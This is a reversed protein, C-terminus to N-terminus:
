ENGGITAPPLSPGPDALRKAREDTSWLLYLVAVFIGVRVVWWLVLWPSVGEPERRRRRVPAEGDGETLQSFDFDNEPM